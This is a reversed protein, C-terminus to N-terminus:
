SNNKIHSYIMLKRNIKGTETRSFDATFIIEKPIEFKQLSNKLEAKLLKIESRNYESGEIFLILINGLKKNPIGGIFYSQSIHKSIKNEIIEPHLKVGGSIIVSDARGTIIFSGDKFKIAIDNTKLNTVGIKPADIILLSNINTSIKVGPLTYYANHDSKHSVKRLAIHTITETMGYSHWTVLNPIKILQNELEDTISAGGILLTNIKQLQKIGGPNNLLEFVQNPVMAAFDIKHLENNTPLSSPKTYILNLNGVIARVIMMKGAIFKAPLCLWVSEDNKLNFFSLTAKASAIMHKKQLHIKKPVGTSGSTTVVISDSPSIWDQIFLYIEKEWLDVKTSSVKDQCLSELENLTFFKGHLKIYHSKNVM